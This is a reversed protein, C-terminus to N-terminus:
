HCVPVVSLWKTWILYNTTKILTNRPGSVSAKRKKLSLKVWQKRSMFLIEIFVLGVKVNSKLSYLVVHCCLWLSCEESSAPTCIWITRTFLIARNHCWTCIFAVDDELVANLCHCPILYVDCDFWGMIHHHLVSTSHSLILVAYWWPHFQLLKKMFPWDWSGTNTKGLM